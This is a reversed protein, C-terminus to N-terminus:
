KVVYYHVATNVMTYQQTLTKIYSFYWVFVYVVWLNLLAFLYNISISLKFQNM